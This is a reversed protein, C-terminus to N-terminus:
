ELGQAECARCCKGKLEMGCHLGISDGNRFFNVEKGDWLFVVLIGVNKALGFCFCESEVM